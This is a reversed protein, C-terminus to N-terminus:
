IIILELIAHCFYLDNSYALVNVKIPTTIGINKIPIFDIM